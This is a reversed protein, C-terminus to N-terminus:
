AFFNDFSTNSKAWGLEQCLDWAEGGVYTSMYAGMDYKPGEHIPGKHCM